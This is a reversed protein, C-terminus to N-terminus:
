WARAPPWAARGGGAGLAAVAAVGRGARGPRGNRRREGSASPTGWVAMVADGIFKEVTRWPPRDRDPGRRTAPCCCSASPRPIAFSESLPTFGVLDCSCGLVGATRGGARPGPRPRGPRRVTGPRRTRDVAPNQGAASNQRSGTRRVARLRLGPLLLAGAVVREDCSPCAGLPAGCTGCFRDAAGLSAGCQGCRSLDGYMAATLQTLYALRYALGEPAQGKGPRRAKGAMAGGHGRQEDGQGAPVPRARSTWSTRRGPWRYWSDTASM